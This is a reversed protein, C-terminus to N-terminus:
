AFTIAASTSRTGDPFVINLYYTDAGGAHTIVFDLDGDSECVAFGASNNAELVAVMGDTGAAVSTDPGTAELTDGASDSSLYWDVKRQAALDDGAADSLQVNVTIANAAETGITFSASTPQGDARDAANILKTAVGANKQRQPIAIKVANKENETLAM